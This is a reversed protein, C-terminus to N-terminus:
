MQQTQEITKPVNVSLNDTKLISSHHGVSEAANQLAELNTQLRM